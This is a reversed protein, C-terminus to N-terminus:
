GLWGGISSFILELLVFRPIDIREPLSRLGIISDAMAPLLETRGRRVRQWISDASLVM